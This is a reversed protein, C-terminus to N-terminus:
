LICWIDPRYDQNQVVSLYFYQLYCLSLIIQYIVLEFFKFVICRKLLSFNSKNCGVYERSSYKHAKVHFHLQIFHPSIKFLQINFSATCKQTSLTYYLFQELVADTHLWYQSIIFCYCLLLWHLTNIQQVIKYHCIIVWSYISITTIHGM